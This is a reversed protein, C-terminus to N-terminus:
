ETCMIKISQTEQSTTFTVVFIGRQGGLDEISVPLSHHGARVETKQQHIIHGKLDSITMDIVEDQPVYFSIETLHSFPNPVNQYVMLSLQESPSHEQPEQIRWGVPSAQDPNTVVESPFSHNWTIFDSLMGDLAPILVWEMIVEGEKTNIATENHFSFNLGKGEESIWQHYHHRNVDLVGGKIEKIVAGEHLSIGYQIGYLESIHTLRVPIKVEVGAKVTINEVWLQTATTRTQTNQSGLNVLASHNVDGTKIGKFNFHHQENAQALIDAMAPLSWPDSTTMGNDLIFKWSSSKRLTMELGLILKRIETIDSATVRGDNNADAALFQGHSTFPQMDLIHRQIMVMDLTTVGNLWDGERVPKINYRHDNIFSDYEFIGNDDVQITSIETTFDNEIYIDVDTMPDNERHVTGSVFAPKSNGCHDANDQIKIRVTCYDHNGAEDWVYIDLPHLGIDRCDFLLASSNESPDWLEAVGNLYEAETAEVSRSGSLKYYHRRNWTVPSHAGFTFWLNKSCNDLAGVNYDKAWVAVSSSSPMLVTAIETICYPTPKKVDRVQVIQTCTQENGCADEVTWKVNHFGVNLFESFQRSHVRAGGNLSYSYNLEEAPTCSDTGAGLFSVQKGCGTNVDETITTCIAEPKETDIVKIIQQYTKQTSLNQTDYTCWDIATWHRVIKFCADEVDEFIQDVYSVAVQSCGTNEWTPFGGTLPNHPGFDQANQCSNVLTKHAPFIIDDLDFPTLNRVQINQQRAAVIRLSGKEKVQWTRRITREGCEGESVNDSFDLFYLDCPATFSASSNLALPSTAAECDVTVDGPVQLVPLNKQQIDVNVMCTNMNRSEDIVLLEVQQRNNVQDACCFDAFDYYAAGEYTAVVSAESSLTCSPTMRRIALTVESCNDHSGDDISPAYLRAQGRNDLSVVTIEDCVPTPKTQDSVEVSTYCYTSNGCADTVTYRIWTKGQPLNKIIYHSDIQIVNETMYHGEEPEMNYSLSNSYAVSWTTENEDRIQYPAPVTFDATCKEDRIFIQYVENSRCDVVPNWVDTVSILQTHTAVAGSCWDIVTWERIIKFTHGCLPIVVDRYTMNIKCHTSLTPLSESHPSYKFIRTTDFSPYGTLDPTFYQSTERLSNHSGSYNIEVNSPWFILDIDESQYYVRFSCPASVNGSKDRATYTFTRVGTFGSSHGCSFEEWEDSILTIVADEDCSDEYFPVPPYFEANACSVTYDEPCEIVPPLKDELIVKGWCSNGTFTDIAHITFMQGIHEATLPQPITMGKSDEIRIIVRHLGRPDELIMEPTIYVECNEGVSVHILDNCVLVFDNDLEITAASSFAACNQGTDGNEMVLVRFQSRDLDVTIRELCFESETAGAIDSFTGNINQQWQYTLPIQFSNDVEVSLCVDEQNELALIRSNLDTVLDPTLSFDVSATSVAVCGGQDLLRGFIEVQQNAYVMLNGQGDLRGNESNQGGNGPIFRIRGTIPNTGMMADMFNNHLTTLMVDPNQDPQLMQRLSILDLGRQRDEASVCQNESIQPGSLQCISVIAFDEKDEDTPNDGLPCEGDFATNAEDCIEDDVEICEPFDQTPICDDEDIPYEKIRGEVVSKASTILARNIMFPATSNEKIRLVIYVSTNSLAALDDVPITYHGSTDRTWEYANGTISTVNDSDLFEMQDDLIDTIVIDVADVSGQNFIDILFTVSDGPYYQKAPDAVRKRLALDFCSAISVTSTVSVSCNNEDTVILGLVATGPKLCWTSFLLNQQNLSSILHSDAAMTTGSDALSWDFSYSGTGGVPNASIEVDFDLCVNVPTINPQIMDPQTVQVSCVTECDSADTVTVSYTGASLSSISAESDMTPGSQTNNSWVYTYPATGGSVFATAMGDGSNFCSLSTSNVTCELPAPQRITFECSDICGNGDRVYLQFDRSLVDPDNGVGLDRLVNDGTYPGNINDLSYAVPRTAEPSVLITRNMDSDGFCKLTTDRPSCVIDLPPFSPIIVTDVISCMLGAMNLPPSTVTIHFTDSPLNEQFRGNRTELTNQGLWDITYGNYDSVGEITVNVQASSVGFCNPDTLVESSVQPLSLIELDRYARERCGNEQLAEVIYRGSLFVEPLVLASSDSLLSDPQGPRQIWWTYTLDVSGDTTQSEQNLTLVDKECFQDASQDLSIQPPPLVTVTTEATKTCVLGSLNNQSYHYTFTYPTDIDLLGPDLVFIRNTGVDYFNLADIPGSMTGGRPNARLEFIDNNACVPLNQPRFQPNLAQVDFLAEYLVGNLNYEVIYNGSGDTPDFYFKGDADPGILRSPVPTTTNDSNLRFVSYTGGSPLPDPSLSCTIPILEVPDGNDCAESEQLCYQLADPALILSQVGVIEDEMTFRTYLVDNGESVFNELNDNNVTTTMDRDLYFEVDMVSGDLQDGDIDGFEPRFAKRLNYVYLNNHMMGDAMLEGDKPEILLAQNKNLDLQSNFQCGNQDTIKVECMQNKSYSILQDNMKQVEGQWFCSYPATGGQIDIKAYSNGNLQYQRSQVNLPDPERIVFQHIQACGNPALVTVEYSGSELDDRSNIKKGDSWSLSMTEQSTLAISGDTKGVCSVDTQDLTYSPMVHWIASSETFCKNKECHYEVWILTDDEPTLPYVGAWFGKSDLIVEGESILTQHAFIRIWGPPEQTNQGKSYIYIGVQSEKNKESCEDFNIGIHPSCDCPIQSQVESSWLFLFVTYFALNNFFLLKNM